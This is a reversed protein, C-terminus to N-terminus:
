FLFIFSKLVIQKYRSSMYDCFAFFFPTKQFPKRSFKSFLILLITECQFKNCLKYQISLVLCSRKIVVCKFFM